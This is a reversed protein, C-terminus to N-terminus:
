SSARWIELPYSPRNYCNIALVANCSSSYKCLVAHWWARLFEQGSLETIPRLKRFVIIYFVRSGRKADKINLAERISATSTDEFKHFWVMEPVHSDVQKREEESMQERMGDAIKYVEELIDAESQRSGEPWYLKAVLEETDNLSHRARPLSSLVDSTVSLVNTARGRLGFHTTRDESEVNFTLDVKRNDKDTVFTPKSDFLPNMGWQACRMRQMILLLVLFRPLDQIFNFGSCQIGSQRDFYWVYIIDDPRLLRNSSM